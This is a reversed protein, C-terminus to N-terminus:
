QSKVIALFFLLKGDSEFLKQYSFFQWVGNKFTEDLKESFGRDIGILDFILARTRAAFPSPGNMVELTSEGM